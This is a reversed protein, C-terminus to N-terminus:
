GDKYPGFIFQSAPPHSSSHILYLNTGFMIKGDPGFSGLFKFMHFSPVRPAFWGLIYKIKKRFNQKRLMFKQNWNKM